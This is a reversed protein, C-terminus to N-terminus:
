FSDVQNGLPFHKIMPQTTTNFAKHHISEKVHRNQVCLKRMYDGEFLKLVGDKSTSAEEHNRTSNKVEKRSM